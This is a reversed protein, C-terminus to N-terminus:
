FPSIFNVRRKIKNSMRDKFHDVTAYTVISYVEDHHHHSEHASDQDETTTRHDEKVRIKRLKFFVAALVVLLLFVCIVAGLIIITRNAPVGKFVPTYHAEIKVTNGEVFQCTYRRNSSSQLKVTLNSDCGTQGGSKFGVGEGLLESGTEDVWLLSKEPCPGLGRYRVLSCQLTFDGDKTPDAGPPSPSISMMNLYVDTDFRGGDWLQCTYRGADEATINNIILSCNNDLRLRAARASSQVKGGHVEHHREMNEARTYFWDVASCSLSSSPRKCSLVADDGARHYIHVGEGRIVKFVPTYHAEIKVTNNKVFQCTYRRNSSSQLKVTLNSDCGTQGGSKFGVGEGLLESGTEDVWLLSKEPCHGLGRYRELSCQLTFDEDKTPDAGPPSPSITLVSLIVSGDFTTGSGFRCAYAGADEATINNIILSCKSDVNLRAARPSSQDVKGDQVELLSSSSTDRFYIWTVISCPSSSSPSNCPLVVDDGSRHYLEGGRTGEFQLVVILVLELVLMEQGEILQQVSLSKERSCM